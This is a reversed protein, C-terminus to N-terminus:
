TYEFTKTEEQKQKTKSLNNEKEINKFYHTFM